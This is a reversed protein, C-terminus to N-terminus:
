ATSNKVKIASKCSVYYRINDSFIVVRYWGVKLSDTNFKAIGKSNTKLSYYKDAIKIKLKLCKIAKNTKKDKVTVYFPKSENQLKVLKPASVTTQTKILKDIRGFNHVGLLLKSPPGPLKNKSIFKNKFYIDDKLYGTSMGVFRGNDNAAYVNVHSSTKGETTTAKWHFITIDRRNIGYSDTAGVKIAAKAPNKSYGTWKAHRFCYKGNPSSLYEGPKLKGSYIGSSWVVAYKGNPAKISFHGLGLQSEYSQIKKLYSHQIKGSKVMKGALNEIARNIGPNDMGGTGVMWGDSTTISHFFYSYAEKYQKIATKGHWKVAKIYINLANTADRRFGAVAETSSVQLYFSCCGTEATPMVTLTAKAKKSEINKDAISTIVKYSGVKFNKKLYAIGKSNTTSRYIKYKNKDTFVKFAVEVAKVPKKTAKDIVKARFYLDSHWYTKYNETEIALSPKGVNVVADASSPAYDEDGYFKITAIYTDPKLNLKLAVNGLNDTTKNYIKGNIFISLTRNSIPQDTDDKLCGMLECNEKYYSTINKSEIETQNRIDDAPSQGIDEFGSENINASFDLDSTSNDSASVIGMCIILLVTSILIKKYMTKGHFIKSM